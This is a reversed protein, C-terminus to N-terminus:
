VAEAKLQELMKTLSERWHPISFDLKKRIKEKSLVSYHPRKAPTPFEKSPIPLISETKVPFGMAKGENIIQWAFDYWSTVGENTFHFTGMAGNSMLARIARYIDLTHSPSGIQDDVIRLQERESALRLMTKVFNNGHLGYVWATRLITAAPLIKRIEQEGEWKSQGYVGLPNATDDEKYPTSQSGDFIFDTSIHLLRGGYQKVGEAVARASDRNVAYAIAPEEEAKDVATYAACNIVWDAQHSAIFEAVHEPVSLDLEKRDIAIVENGEAQLALETERGLQGAAGTVLIKM